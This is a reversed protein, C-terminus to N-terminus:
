RKAGCYICVDDLGFSHRFDSYDNQYELYYYGCLPCTYRYYRYDRHYNSDLPICHWEEVVMMHPHTCAAAQSAEAASALLAFSSLLMVVALVMTLVRFSKKM